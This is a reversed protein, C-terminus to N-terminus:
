HLGPLDWVHMSQKSSNEKKNGDSMYWWISNHTLSFSFLVKTNKLELFLTVIANKYIYEYQPIWTRTKDKGQWVLEKRKKKRKKREEEEERGVSSEEKWVWKSNVFSMLEGGQDVVGALAWNKRRRQKRRRRSLPDQSESNHTTMEIAYAISDASSERWRRPFIM